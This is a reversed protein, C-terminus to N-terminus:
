ANSNIPKRRNLVFAVSLLSVALPIIALWPLEPVTPTPTPIPTATPAPPGPAITSQTGPRTTAVPDEQFAITQAHADITFTLTQSVSANFPADPAGVVNCYIDIWITHQQQSLNEFVVTYQDVINHTWPYTHKMEGDLYLYVAFEGVTPIEGLYYSSWSPPKTVNFHLELTNDAYIPSSAKPDQITLIPFETVPESNYPVPNAQVVWPMLLGVSLMGILAIM